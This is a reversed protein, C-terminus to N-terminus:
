RAAADSGSAVGPGGPAAPALSREETPTPAPPASPPVYPLPGAVWRLASSVAITETPQVALDRILTRASLTMMPGLRPEAVFRQRLAALAEADIPALGEVSAGRFTMAAAIIQERLAPDVANGYAVLALEPVPPGLKRVVAVRDPLPLGVPLLVCDAQGLVLSTLASASDPRASIVKFFTRAEGQLLGDAIKAATDDNTNEGSTSGNRTFPGNEGTAVLLHTNRLSTLSLNEGSAVLQWLVPPDTVAVVREGPIPTRLFSVDVLAVAIRKDRVATKFDEGHAFVRSKVKQDPMAEALHATLAAALHEALAAALAVRAQTDALPAAPAFLGVTVEASSVEASSMVALAAGLALAALLRARQRRPRV